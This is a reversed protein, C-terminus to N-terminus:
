LVTKTVMIGERFYIQESFKSKTTADKTRRIKITENEGRYIEKIVSLWIDHEFNPWEMKNEKVINIYKNVYLEKIIKLLKPPIEEGM